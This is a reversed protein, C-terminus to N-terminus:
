RLAIVLSRDRDGTRAAPGRLRAPAPAGQDPRGPLPLAALPGRAGAHSASQLPAGPQGPQHSRRPGLLARPPGRVLEGPAHLRALPLAQRSGGAAKAVLGPGGIRPSRTPTWTRWITPPRPGRSPACCPPTFSSRLRRAALHHAQAGLRRRPDTSEPKPPRPRRAASRRGLTPWM